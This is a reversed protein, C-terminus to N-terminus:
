LHVVKSKSIEGIRDAVVMRHCHEHNAEYCMICIPSEELLAAVENLAQKKRRLHKSFGKLFDGINQDRKVQERLKKPSGLDRYSLYIVDHETLFQQLPTKSFGSKRSLPIERVDVLIPIDHKVMVSLLDELNRGEYGITFVTNRM